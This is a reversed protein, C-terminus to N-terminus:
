DAGSASKCFLIWTGVFYSCLLTGLVSLVVIIQQLLKGTGIYIAIQTSFSQFVFLLFIASLLLALGVPVGFWTGLQRIILHKINREEVGINRLVRFRYQYQDSDSLQQLALITFCIVFLIIASYTLGTQMVFIAASTDSIEVTSTGISYTEHEEDSLNDYFFDELEKATAYPIPADTVAYRYSNARTLNAAVSDPVICIVNQFNYINEGIEESQPPMEALRLAGVDTEIVSNGQMYTQITTKPTVSLWQTAYERDSLDIQGYGLMRMLHNYDSLAIATVPHPTDSNQEYFDSKRLFYTPFVCEDQIQIEHEEIFGNLFSYDEDPLENLDTIGTYDSSVQIDYVTRKELFGQAWGVLVPALLFLSVSLTLTLCILTMSLTNSKLKSLIQGFFFLNEGRYKVKISDNKLKLLGNSFVVFFTSVLFILCWILFVLYLNFAGKDMPLAYQIKLLPLMGVVAIEVVGILVTVLLHRMQTHKKRSVRGIVHCGAMIFPIVICIVSWAQVVSSFADSLYYTLTRIGYIGAAFQLIINCFMVKNFWSHTAGAEENKRNAGLMDIIRSKRITRIQFFGAVCFCVFFFLVTLLVTDPFLMFSFQFPKHFIQLLMATILQSFLVGLVIGILVSVAGMILTEAFFFWAVTSQEMGIISEVAFEKQRKRLMFRNVYQVLFILLTTIALVVLKMGSGLIQIDFEAGIDPRYYKSTISLFAYFMAVCATLTIIYILYDKISKKANKWALKVYM